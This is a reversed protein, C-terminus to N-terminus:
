HALNYLNKSRCGNWIDGTWFSESETPTNTGRYSIVTEGGVDYAIAYFGIDDDLRQNSADRFVGSDMIINASGISVNTVDSDDIPDGNADLDGLYIGQDYGRNYSDMALIAKFLLDNM